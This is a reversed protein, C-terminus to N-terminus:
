SGPAPEGRKVLRIEVIRQEAPILVVKVKDGPKFDALQPKHDLVKKDARLKASKDITTLYEKGDKIDRLTMEMKDVNVSVIECDVRKVQTPPVSPMSEIGAYQAAAVGALLFGIPLLRTARM